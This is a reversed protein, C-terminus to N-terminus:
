AYFQNILKENSLLPMMFHEKIVEFGNNLYFKFRSEGQGYYKYQNGPIGPKLFVPYDMECSIKNLVQIFKSGLGQGPNFVELRYLEFGNGNDYISISYDNNYLKIMEGKTYNMHSVGDDTTRFEEMMGIDNFEFEFGEQNLRNKLEVLDDTKEVTKISRIKITMMEGTHNNRSKIVKGVRVKSM